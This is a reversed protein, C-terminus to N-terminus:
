VGYAEYFYKRIQGGLEANDITKSALKRVHDEDRGYVGAVFNRKGQADFFLYLEVRDSAPHNEPTVLFDLGLNKAETIRAPLDDIHISQVTYRDPRPM